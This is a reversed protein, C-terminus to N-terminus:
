LNKGEWKGTREEQQFQDKYRASEIVADEAGNFFEKLEHRRITLSKNSLLEWRGTAERVWTELAVYPTGNLELWTMRLEMPKKGRDARKITALRRVEAVKPSSKHYTM